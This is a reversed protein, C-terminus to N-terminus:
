GETTKNLMIKISFLNWLLLNYIEINEQRLYASLYKNMTIKKLGIFNKFKDNTEIFSSRM